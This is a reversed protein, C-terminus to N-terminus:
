ESSGPESTSWWNSPQPDRNTQVGHRELAAFLRDRDPLATLIIVSDVARLRLRVSSSGVAEASALDAWPFRWSPVAFRFLAFSPAVSIGDDDGVVRAMPSTATMTGVPALPYRVGALSSWHARQSPVSSAFRQLASRRQSRPYVVLWGIGAGVAAALLLLPFWAPITRAVLIVDLYGLVRHVV